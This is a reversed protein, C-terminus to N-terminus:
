SKMDRVIREVIWQPRTIASGIVVAFAGLELMRRAQEGNAIRGEAFVPISLQQSLKEVLDFDPEENHPSYDTYGSLTTSVATAGADQAALGEEFTSIDALVPLRTKATVAQILERVSPVQPHERRTADLAIIHAGAEAVQVSAELTPTIRVQFGTLDIKHLGILPLPIDRAIAKIDEPGNARIGVAGGALACRAFEVM